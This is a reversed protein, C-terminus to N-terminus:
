SKKQRIFFIIISGGILLLGFTVYGLLIQSFGFLVPFILSMEQKRPETPSKLIIESAPTKNRGRFAVVVALIVLVSALIYLIKAIYEM